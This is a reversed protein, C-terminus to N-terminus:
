FAACSTQPSAAAFHRARTLGGFNLLTVGAAM